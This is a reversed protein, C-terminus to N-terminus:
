NVLTHAQIKTHAVLFHRRPNNHKTRSHKFFALRKALM